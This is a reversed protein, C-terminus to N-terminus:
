PGKATSNKMLQHEFLKEVKPEASNQSDPTLGYIETTLSDETLLIRSFSGTSSFFKSGPGSNTKRSDSATGCILSPLNLKPHVLFQVDHEHGCLLLHSEKLTDPILHGIYETRGHHHGYSLLPHHSVTIRWRSHDKANQAELSQQTQKKAWLQQDPDCPLTTSDLAIFDVGWNPYNAEFHFYRGPIEFGNEALQDIFVKPSAPGDCDGYEHNGLASIFPAHQTLRKTAQLVTKSFRLTEAPGNNVLARPYAWDGGCAIIVDKSRSTAILHHELARFVAARQASAFGIDAFFYVCLADSQTPLHKSQGGKPLTKADTVVFSGSPDIWQERGDIMQPVVRNLRAEPFPLGKPFFTKAINKISRNPIKNNSLGQVLAFSSCLVANLRM